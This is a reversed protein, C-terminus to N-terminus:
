YESPLLLTTVSRDWETIVWITEDRSTKYVSMVRMQKDEEGEHAIAENNLDADDECLEGWEGSQHKQLFSDPLQNSKSLSEIAGPTIAIKGLRFKAKNQNTM